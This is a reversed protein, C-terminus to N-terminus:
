LEVLRRLYPIKRIIAATLMCFITVFVCLGINVLSNDFRYFPQIIRYCFIHLIYVGMTLPSIIEVIKNLHINTLHINSLYIFIVVVEIIMLLNDYFFEALDIGCIRYGWFYEYCLNLIVIPIIIKKVTRITKINLEVKRLLGGSYYYLIWTWIRLPQRIFGQIPKGTVFAFRMSILDIVLCIIVLVGWLYYNKNQVQKCLFPTFLYLIILSGFFWFQYFTGKQWFMETATEVVPNFMSHGTLYRFADYICNWIFAIVIMRFIKTIFYKITNNRRTLIFYGHVVFFAPIAFGVAYYFLRSFISSERGIFHLVVVGFCSFIKLLDIGINRSKSM